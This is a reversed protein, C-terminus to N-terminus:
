PNKSITKVDSVLAALAHYAADQRLVHYRQVPVEVAAPQDVPRIGQEATSVLRSDVPNGEVKYVVRTSAKDTVQLEARWYNQAPPRPQSNEGGAPALVLIGPVLRFDFRVIAGVDPASCDAELKWPLKSLLGKRESERNVLERVDFEQPRPVDGPYVPGKLNSTDVCYTRVKSFAAADLVKGALKEGAAATPAAACALLVLVWLKLRM